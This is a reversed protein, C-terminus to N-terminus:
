SYMGSPNEVSSSSMSCIDSNLDFITVRSRESRSPSRSTGFTLLIDLAKSKVTTLSRISVTNEIKASFTVPCSPM